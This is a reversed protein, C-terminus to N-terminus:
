SHQVRWINWFIKDSDFCEGVKDSLTAKKKVLHVFHSTVPHSYYAKRLANSMPTYNKLQLVSIKTVYTFFFFWSCMQATSVNKTIKGRKWYSHWNNTFMCKVFHKIKDHKCYGPFFMYLFKRVNAHFFTSVDRTTRIRDVRLAVILM